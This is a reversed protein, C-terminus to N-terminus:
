NPNKIILKNEIYPHPKSILMLFYYYWLEHKDYAFKDNGKKIYRDIFKRYFM